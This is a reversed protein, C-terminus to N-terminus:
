RDPKSLIKFDEEFEKPHRAQLCVNVLCNAAMEIDTLAVGKDRSVEKGLCVEWTTNFDSDHAGFYSNDSDPIHILRYTIRKKSAVPRMNTLINYAHQLQKRFKGTGPFMDVVVTMLDDFNYTDLLEYFKMISNVALFSPSQPPTGRPRVM